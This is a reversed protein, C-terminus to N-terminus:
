RYKVDFQTDASVNVGTSMLTFAVNNDIYAILQMYSSSDQFGGGVTVYAANYISASKIDDFQQKTLRGVCASSGTTIMASVSIENWNAPLAITSTGRQSSLPKWTLMDQVSTQGDSMLCNSAKVKKEPNDIPILAAKGM